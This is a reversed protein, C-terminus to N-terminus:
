NKSSFVALILTKLRGFGKLFGDWLPRFDIDGFVNFKEDTKARTKQKKSVEIEQFHQNKRPFILMKSSKALMAKKGKEHKKPGM